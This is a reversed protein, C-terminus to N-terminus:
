QSAEATAARALRTRALPQPDALFELMARNFTEPHELMPLHGCCDFVVYRATPLLTAALAGLKLPFTRDQAGWLLLIPMTLESLREIGGTLSLDFHRYDRSLTVLVRMHDPDLMAHRLEGLVQDNIFAPDPRYVMRRMLPRMARESAALRVLAEIVTRSLAVRGWIPVSGFGDSDVLVLRDVRTPQELAFYLALKGGMSHGALHASELGLSDLCRGLFHAYYDLSYPADPLASRGFGILDIAYVRHRAGLAEINRLWADASATFGHILLLPSGQEGAQLYVIPQGDVHVTHQQIAGSWALFTITSRRNCHVPM